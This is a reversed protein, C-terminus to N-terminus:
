NWPRVSFVREIGNKIMQALYFEARLKTTFAKIADGTKDNYVAWM